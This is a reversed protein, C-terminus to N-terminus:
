RYRVVATSWFPVVRVGRINEARRPLDLPHEALDFTDHGVADVTGPWRAGEIDVVEVARRDRALARLAAGLGFRRAVASAAPTRGALGRVARIAAFTVLDAREASGVLLWDAGVDLVEGEVLGAGAVQFTVVQGDAMAARLRDHLGLQAREQRVRDTVEALREQREQDDLQAELDDFLRDWRM